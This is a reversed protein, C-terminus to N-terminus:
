RGDFITVILTVDHRRRPGGNATLLGSTALSDPPLVLLTRPRAYAPAAAVLGDVLAHHKATDARDFWVAGFASAEIIIGIQGDAAPLVVCRGIRPDAQLM